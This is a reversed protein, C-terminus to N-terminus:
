AGVGLVPLLPGLTPDIDELQTTIRVRGKTNVSRAVTARRVKDLADLLAETSKYPAGARQARLFACQALLYGLICILVHVHLKHDTWHFQPRLAVHMPDKLHAFVAEIRSQGHYTDIIDATSWDDRDTVLVIRGLTDRELAEFAARDFAFSLALNPDEGTLEYTLVDSLRQRGHLRNEIDRLIQSRSRRQKGRLLTQALDNLWELASAVHQLVGRAQGERLRESLVVVATRESGWIRRRERYALVGDGTMLDVRALLPNAKDVLEKQSAATLGTVYHIGSGDVLKQNARSVNGKDFVITLSMVDRHLEVLRQRIAPVAEAFSKSDSVQGGYTHHWLPVGGVRSCLLAIGVQRLDDRKQKNHGRAALECRGNTSAIFTFFNTADFLVTDLPIDFRALVRSVIEREIPDIAEVPVQDMQDWFHQSTLRRVDVQALSGLTTTSAWDAFGRKSTAHCARGVSALALSQGVSLGDNKVPSRLPQAAALDRGSHRQGSAALKDDVVEALGVDKAQAWLAAVAGHSASRIRLAEEGRLRALLDDAKGLYCIPVPRPKGNVRRSEVIHWYTKGRSRRPQLSAM